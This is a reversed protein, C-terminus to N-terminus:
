GGTGYLRKGGTDVDCLWNYYTGGEDSGLTLKQIELEFLEQYTYSWGYHDHLALMTEDCSTFVENNKLKMKWPEDPPIYATEGETLQLLRDILAKLPPIFNVQARLGLATGRVLQKQSVDAPPDIYYGTKALIKGPKPGFCYGGVSVPYVRSSCFEADTLRKKYNAIAEFGFALMEKKWDPRLGDTHTILNDDGQVLMRIHNRAEAVSIKRAECFLFLHLLGNLISNFLSTYPDGSKRTGDVRYVFGNTTTGHTAINEYMLDAVAKPCRFKRVLWVELEGLQRCVSADWKGVDDELINRFGPQNILNCADRPSVGSTFCIFNDKNWDKKIQKQLAAIWPGVLAIFEPTGGQILRPAKDKVSLPSRFTLNEVKVFGGRKTFQHLQDQTLKTKNSIGQEELKYYANKINRKVGPKANSNALYEQISLTHIHKGVTKPFIHQVNQKVWKVFNKIRNPDPEPTPGLVRANIAAKENFGNSSFAVPRYDASGLGYLYQKGTIEDYGRKNKPYPGKVSGKVTASPNLACNSLPFSKFRLM